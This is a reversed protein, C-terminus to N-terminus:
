VTAKSKKKKKNGKSKKGKSKKAAGGNLGTKGTQGGSAIAAIGFIGAVALLIKIANKPKKEEKPLEVTDLKNTERVLNVESGLTKFVYNRSEYGVHSFVIVSDPTPATISVIGNSNPTSGVDTDDKLYVHALTLPSGTDTDVVGVQKTSAGKTNATFIPNEVQVPNNKIPFGDPVFPPSQEVEIIVNQPASYDNPNVVGTTIPPYSPVVTDNVNNPDNKPM